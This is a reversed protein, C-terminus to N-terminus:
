KLKREWIPAKYGMKVWFPKAQELPVSLRVSQAQFRNAIKIIENHIPGGVNGYGKLISSPYFENISMILGSYLELKSYNCEDLVYKPMITCMLEADPFIDEFYKSFRLEISNINKETIMISNCPIYEVQNTRPLNQWIYNLEMDTKCLDMLYRYTLDSFTGDISSELPQTSLRNNPTNFRYRENWYLVLQDVSEKITLDPGIIRTVASETKM